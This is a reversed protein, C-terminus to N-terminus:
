RIGQDPYKGTVNRGFAKMEEIQDDMNGNPIIIPGIGAEKKKYDLYGVVIPVNAGLAIHYFGSKWKPAYSRTGEPTVMMVLEDSEKLLNIMLETYTQKRKGATKKRDIAIGGLGKILWGLPGVMVEKKITFKVPVDMLYFAARAYLLDWNSTHPIAILVAKTMSKPWTSVFKWGTLWFVVRSLFKMM